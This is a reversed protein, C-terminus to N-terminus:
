GKIGERSVGSMIQKRFILFIIIIPISVVVVAAMMAPINDRGFGTVKIM